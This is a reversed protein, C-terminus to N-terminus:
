ALKDIVLVSSLFPVTMFGEFRNSQTTAPTAATNTAAAETACAILCPLQAGTVETAHSGATTTATQGPDPRRQRERRRSVARQATGAPTFFVTRSMRIRFSRAWPWNASAMPTDRWVM